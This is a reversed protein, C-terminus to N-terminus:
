RSSGYLPADAPAGGLSGDIYRHDHLVFGHFEPVGYSAISGKEVKSRSYEKAYVEVYMRVYM